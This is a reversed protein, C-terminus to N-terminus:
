IMSWIWNAVLSALVGAIFGISGYKMKQSLSVKIKNDNGNIIPSFDGNTSNDGM